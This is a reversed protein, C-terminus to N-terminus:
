NLRERLMDIEVQQEELRKNLFDIARASANIVDCMTAITSRTYLMPVPGEILPMKRLKDRM